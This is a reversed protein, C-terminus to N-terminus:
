VVRIADLLAAAAPRDEGVIDITGQEELAAWRDRDAAVLCWAATTFAVEVTPAAAVLAGFRRGGLDIRWTPGPADRVTVAVVGSRPGIAPLATVPLARRQFWALAARTPADMVPEPDGLARAVDVQHVWEDYVRLCSLWVLPVPGFSSPVAVTGLRGPLAAVLRRLRAGWVRLDRRLQEDDIGRGEAVLHDAFPELEEPRSAGLLSPALRGTVAARDFTALHVFVDRVSWGAVAPRALAAAHLRDFWTCSTARLRAALAAVDRPRPAPDPTTV